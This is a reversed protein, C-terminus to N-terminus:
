GKTWAAPATKELESCGVEQALLSVLGEDQEMSSKM